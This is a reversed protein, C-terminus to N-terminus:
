RRTNQYNMKDIMHKCRDPSEDFLIKQAKDMQSPNYGNLMGLNYSFIDCQKEDDHFIYHGIEHGITFVPVFKYKHNKIKPDIIIKRKGLMISAKNENEQEYIKIDRPITLGSFNQKELPPYPYFKDLRRVKGISQYKGKPLNFVIKREKNPHYYFLKGRDDYIEVPNESFFSSPFFNVIKM